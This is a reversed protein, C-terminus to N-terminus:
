GIWGGDLGNLGVVEVGKGSLKWRTANNICNKEIRNIRIHHQIPYIRKNYVVPRALSHLHSKPVQELTRYKRPFMTSSLADVSYIISIKRPLCSTDM